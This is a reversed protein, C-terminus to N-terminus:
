FVHADIIIGNCVNVPKQHLQLIRLVVWHRWVSSMLSTSHFVLLDSHIIFIQKELWMQELKSKKENVSPLFFDNNFFLDTDAQFLSTKYTIMALHCLQWRLIFCSYLLHPIGSFFVSDISIMWAKMKFFAIIQTTWISTWKYCLLAFMMLWIAKNLSQIFLCCLIGRERERM